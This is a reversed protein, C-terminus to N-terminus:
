CALRVSVVAALVWERNPQQMTIALPIQMLFLLSFFDVVYIKVPRKRTKAAKDLLRLIFGAFFIPILIVGLMLLAMLVRFVVYLPFNEM